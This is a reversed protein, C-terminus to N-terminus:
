QRRLRRSFLGLGLLASGVLATTVPEPAQSFGEHFGRISASGSQNQPVRVQLDKSVHVISVSGFPFLQGMSFPGANSDVELTMSGILTTDTKDYGAITEGIFAQGSPTVSFGCLACNIFDLDGDVLNPSLDFMAVEFKISADIALPNGIPSFGNVSWGGSTFTMGPETPDSSDPTITVQAGTPATVGPGSATGVYSFNFFLMNSFQCASGLNTYTAQYFAFTNATCLPAAQSIGALGAFAALILLTRRM